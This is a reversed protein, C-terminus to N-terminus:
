LSLEPPKRFQNITLVPPLFRYAHNFGFESISNGCFFVACRLRLWLPVGSGARSAAPASTLPISTLPIWSGAKHGNGQGVNGQGSRGDQKTRRANKRPWCRNEPQVPFNQQDLSRVTGGPSRPKWTHKGGADIPSLRCVTREPAVGASDFQHRSWNM